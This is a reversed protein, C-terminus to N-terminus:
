QVRITSTHKKNTTPHETPHISDPLAHAPRGATPPRVAASKSSKLGRIREFTDYSEMFRREYKSIKMSMLPAVYENELQEWKMKTADYYHEILIGGFRGLPLTACEIQIRVFRRFTMPLELWEQATTIFINEQKRQQTLFEMIDEDFKTGKTMITFIEDYIIYCNKQDKLDLLEDLTNLHTYEIGKLTVNSYIRKGRTHKRIFKNLSYTKGSGQKGTFCYVGFLGRALPLTPRPISSWDVSVKNKLVIMFIIALIIFIIITM